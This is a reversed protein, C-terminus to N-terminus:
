RGHSERLRYHYSYAYSFGARTYLERAATNGQEVQLYLRAIDHAAAWRGHADLGIHRTAPSVQVAAPLGREGYFAEVGPLVSRGDNGSSLPLATNGSRLRQMGPTHRVLWGDLNHTIPAPWADIAHREIRQVDEPASGAVIDTLTSALQELTSRSVNV